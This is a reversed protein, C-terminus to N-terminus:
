HIGAAKDLASSKFQGAPPVIRKAAVGERLQELADDWRDYEQQTLRWQGRRLGTAELIRAVVSSPVDGWHPNARFFGMIAAVDARETYALATQVAEAEYESFAERGKPTASFIVSAAEREEEGLGKEKGAARMTQQSALDCGYPLPEIPPETLPEPALRAGRFPSNPVPTTGIQGGGFYRLEYHNVASKSGRRSRTVRLHRRTALRKISRICARRSMGSIRVLTAIGPWADLSKRNVHWSVCTGIWRDAASLNDDLGLQERFKEFPMPRPTMPRLGKSGLGEAIKPRSTQNNKELRSIRAM